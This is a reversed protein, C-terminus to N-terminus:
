DGSGSDPQRAAAWFLAGVVVAAALSLALRVDPVTAFYYWAALFSLVALALALGAYILIGRERWPRPEPELLALAGALFLITLLARPSVYSVAFGPRLFEAAAVALAFGAAALCASRGIEAAYARILLDLRAPRRSTRRTKGIGFVM